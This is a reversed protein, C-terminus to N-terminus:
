GHQLGPRRRKAGYAIFHKLCAIITEQNFLSDGQFGEVQAKAILAGLYPDEGARRGSKGM